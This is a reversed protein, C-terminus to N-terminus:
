KKGSTKMVAKMKTTAGKKGGKANTNSNKRTAPKSKTKGTSASAKTEPKKENTKSKKTSSKTSSASGVPTLKLNKVDAKKKLITPYKETWVDCRDLGRESFFFETAKENEAYMMVLQHNKPVDMSTQFLMSAFEQQRKQGKKPSDEILLHPHSFNVTVRENPGPCQCFQPQSAPYPVPNIFTGDACEFGWEKDAEPMENEPYVKGWLAMRYGRPLDRGAVLMKGFRPHPMVKVSPDGNKMCKKCYPVFPEAWEENCKKGDLFTAICLGSALGNQKRKQEAPAAFPRAASNSSVSNNSSCSVASSAKIKSSSMIKKVKSLLSSKIPKNLKKIKMSKNSTSAVPNKKDALDVHDVERKSCRRSSPSTSSLEPEKKNKDKTDNKGTYKPSSTSSAEVKRKMANAEDTSFSSCSSTSAPAEQKSSPKQKENKSTRKMVNVLPAEAPKALNKLRIKKIKNSISPSSFSSSASSRWNNVAKPSTPAAESKKKKTKKGRGGANHSLVPIVDADAGRKEVVKMAPTSDLLNPLMRDEVATKEERHVNLPDSTHDDKRARAFLQLDQAVERSCSAFGRHVIDNDAEVQQLGPHVSVAGDGLLGGSDASQGEQENLKCSVSTTVVKEEADGKKKMEQDHIHLLGFSAYNRRREYALEEKNPNKLPEWSGSGPRAYWPPMDIKERRQSYDPVPSQDKMQRGVAVQDKDQHEKPQRPLVEVHDEAQHKAYSVRQNKTTRTNANVNNNPSFVPSLPESLDAALLNTPTRDLAASVEQGWGEAAPTILGVHDANQNLTSPMDESGTCYEAPDRNPYYSVGGFDCDDGYSYDRWDVHRDVDILQNPNVEPGMLCVSSLETGDVACSSSSSSSSSKKEVDRSTTTTKASKNKSSPSCSSTATINSTMAKSNGRGATTVTRASTTKKGVVSSLLEQESKSGEFESMESSKPSMAGGLLLRKNPDQEIRGTAFVGESATFFGAEGHGIKAVDSDGTLGGREIGQEQLYVSFAPNVDGKETSVIQSDGTLAGKEIGNLLEGLAPNRNGGSLTSTEGQLLAADPGDPLTANPFFHGGVGITTTIVRKNDEEVQEEDECIPALANSGKKCVPPIIQTSDINGCFVSSEAPTLVARPRGDEVPTTSVQSNNSFASTPKSSSSSSSCSSRAVPAQQLLTKADNHSDNKKEGRSARTSTAPMNKKKKTGASWKMVPINSKLAVSSVKKASSSSAPRTKNPRSPSSPNEGAPMKTPSKESKKTSSGRKHDKAEKNKENKNTSVSAAPGPVNKMSTSFPKVKKIESKQEGLAASKKKTLKTTKKSTASTSFCSRPKKMVSAAKKRLAALKGTKSASKKAPATAKKNDKVEKKKGRRSTVEQKKGSTSSSSSSSAGTSKMAPQHAKKM